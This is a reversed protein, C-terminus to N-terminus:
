AVTWVLHTIRVPKGGKAKVKLVPNKRVHFNKFEYCEKLPTSTLMLVLFSSAVYFGCTHFHTHALSLM